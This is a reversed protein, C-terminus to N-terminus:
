KLPLGFIKRLENDNSDSSDKTSAGVKVFGSEPQGSKLMPFDELVKGIAENVKDASLVGKDDYTSTRDVLKALYPIQKAGIGLEVAKSTIMGELKSDNLEATLRAIDAKMGKVDPEQKAKQEKFATVAQMLEDESLGQQKFYAKLATDEKAALAGNLMKYIKDYDIVPANSQQTGTSDPQAGGQDGTGSEAFHQLNMKIM